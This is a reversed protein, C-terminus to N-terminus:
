RWFNFNHTLFSGDRFRTLVNGGHFLFLAPTPAYEATQISGHVGATGAHRTSFLNRRGAGAIDKEKNHWWWKKVVFLGSEV